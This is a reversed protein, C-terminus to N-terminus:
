NCGLWVEYVILSVVVDGEMEHEACHLGAQTYLHVPGFLVDLLAHNCNVFIFLTCFPLYVHM